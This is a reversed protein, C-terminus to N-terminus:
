RSLSDGVKVRGGEVHANLLHMHGHNNRCFKNIGNESIFKAVVRM